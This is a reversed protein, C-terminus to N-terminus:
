YRNDLLMSLHCGEAETQFFIFIIYVYKGLEYGLM